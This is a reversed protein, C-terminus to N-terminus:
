LSYTERFEAPWFYQLCELHVVWVRTLPLHPHFDCREVDRGGVSVKARAHPVVPVLRCLVPFLRCLEGRVKRVVNGAPIEAAGAVPASALTPSRTTPKGISEYM